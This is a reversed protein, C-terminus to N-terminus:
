NAKVSGPVEETLNADIDQRFATSHQAFDTRATEIGAEEKDVKAVRLALLDGRIADRMMDAHVHRQVIQAIRQLQTNSNQLDNLGRFSVLAFAVVLVASLTAVATFRGRLSHAFSWSRRWKLRKFIKM